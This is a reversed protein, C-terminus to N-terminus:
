IAEREIFIHLPVSEALTVCEEFFKSIALDDSVFHASEVGDLKLIHLVQKLLVGVDECFKFCGCDGFSLFV